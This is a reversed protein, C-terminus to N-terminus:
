ETPPTIAMQKRLWDEVVTNYVETFALRDGNTHMSYCATGGLRRIAEKLCPHLNPELYQGSAAAQGIKQLETWAELAHPAAEIKSLFSRRRIEGLNPMYTDTLLLADISSHVDQSDLDHLVRWWVRLLRQREAQVTPMKQNWTLFVREVIEELEVKTM